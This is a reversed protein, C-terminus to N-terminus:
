GLLSACSQSLAVTKLAASLLLTGDYGSVRERARPNLEPYSSLGKSHGSVSLSFPGPPGPPLHLAPRSSTFVCLLHLELTLPLKQTGVTCLAPCGPSWPFAQHAEPLCPLTPVDDLSIPVCLPASSHGLAPNWCSLCVQSSLGSLAPFFFAQISIFPFCCVGVQQFVSLSRCGCCSIGPRGAASSVCLLSLNDAVTELLFATIVLGLVYSIRVVHGRPWCLRFAQGQPEASHLSPAESFEKNRM